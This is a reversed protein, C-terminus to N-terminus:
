RLTGRGEDGRLALADVSRGEPVQDSENDSFLGCIVSSPFNKRWRDEARRGGISLGNAEFMDSLGATVCFGVSTARELLRPPEQRSRVHKRKVIDSLVRRFM